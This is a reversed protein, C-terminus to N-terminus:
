PRGPNRRTAGLRERKAGYGNWATALDRLAAATWVRITKPDRGHHRAMSSWPQDEVACAFCLRDAMVGIAAEIVRLREITGAIAMLRVHPGGGGSSRVLRANGVAAVTIVREWAARYEVAAQREGPQILGDALLADLRTRVRWGQRFATADVRPADIGEAHQTRAATPRNGVVAGGPPWAVGV